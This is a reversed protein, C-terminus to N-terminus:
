ASRHFSHLSLLCAFRDTLIESGAIIRGRETSSSRLLLLHVGCTEGAGACHPAQPSILWSRVAGTKDTRLNAAASSWNEGRLQLRTLTQSTQMQGQQPSAAAPLPAPRQASGSKLRKSCILQGERSGEAFLLGFGEKIKYQKM